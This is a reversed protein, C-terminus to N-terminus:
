KAVALAGLMVMLAGGLASANRGAVRQLTAGGLWAGGGVCLLSIGGALASVLVPSIGVAGAPIGSAVNNLALAVGLVLAERRTLAGGDGRGVASLADSLLDLRGRATRRKGIVPGAAAALMSTGIGILAVGGLMHASSGLLERALAYGLGMAAATGTMTIVAILVNASAPVRVSATGLAVGVALNDLNSTVAIVVGPDV